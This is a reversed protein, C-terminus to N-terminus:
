KKLRLIKPESTGCDSLGSSTDVSYLYQQVTSIVRQHSISKMTKVEERRASDTHMKNVEQMM